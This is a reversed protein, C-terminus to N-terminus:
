NLTYPVLVRPDDAPFDRTNRTAIRLDHIEATSRVVADPLTLRTTQRIAAARDAVVISISLWEVSNCLKMAAVMAEPTRVGTLVEVRSVISATLQDQAFLFEIASDIRNLFDILLCSDLLVTM